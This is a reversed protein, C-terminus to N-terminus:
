PAAPAAPKSAYNLPAAPLPPAVTQPPQPQSIQQQGVGVATPAPDTGKRHIFGADVLHQVDEVPLEQESGAAHPPKGPTHYIPRDIIYRTTAPKEAM